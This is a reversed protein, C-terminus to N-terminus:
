QKEGSEKMKKKFKMKKGEVNEKINENRLIRININTKKMGGENEQRVEKKKVKRKKTRM